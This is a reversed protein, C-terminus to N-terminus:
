CCYEVQFHVCVSFIVRSAKMTAMMRFEIRRPFVNKMKGM